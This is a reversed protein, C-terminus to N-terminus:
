LGWRKELRAIDQLLVNAWKPRPNGTEHSIHCRQEVLDIVSQKLYPRIRTFSDENVLNNFLDPTELNRALYDRLRNIAERRWALRTRRKEICYSLVPNAIHTLVSAGIGTAIAVLVTEWNITM